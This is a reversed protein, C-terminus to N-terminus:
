SKALMARQDSIRLDAARCAAMKEALGAVIAKSEKVIRDAKALLAALEPPTLLSMSAFTRVGSNAM